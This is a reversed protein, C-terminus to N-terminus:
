SLLQALLRELADYSKGAGESMGTGLVMDRVERSPYECTVVLRTRTGEESLVSTVLSPVDPFPAFIETFVVREPVTIEKYEGYFTVEGRPGKGVFRWTGGVRFDIECVPVSHEDDLIGWWRRVHEPKTMAEFVLARPADFLRTLVIVRESPTSAQFSDSNAVLSKRM